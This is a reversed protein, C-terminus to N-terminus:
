DSARMELTYAQGIATGSATVCVRWVKNAQVWSSDHYGFGTLASSGDDLVADLSIFVRGPDGDEATGGIFAQVDIDTAAGTNFRYCDITSSGAEFSGTIVAGGADLTYGTTESGATDGNTTEASETYTLPTAGVIHSGGGGDQNGSGGGGGGCAVLFLPFLLSTSRKLTHM